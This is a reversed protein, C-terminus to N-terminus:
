IQEEFRKVSTVLGLCSLVAGNVLCDSFSSVSCLTKLTQITPHDGGLNHNHNVMLCTTMAEERFNNHISWACACPSQMLM